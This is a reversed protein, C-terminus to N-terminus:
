QRIAAWLADRLLKARGTSAEACENRLCLELIGSWPYRGVKRVGDSIGLVQSGVLSNFANNCEDVLPRSFASCM